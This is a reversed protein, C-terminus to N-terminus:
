LTVVEGTYADAGSGRYVYPRFEPLGNRIERRDETLASPESGQRGAHEIANAQRCAFCPQEHRRLHRRYAAPTGCPKLRDPSWYVGLRSM